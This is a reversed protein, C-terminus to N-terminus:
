WGIFRAADEKMSPVAAGDGSANSGTTGVTARILINRAANIDRDMKLDCFPCNHMREQLEKAVMRRCASCMKTTNKPEVFVMKCGAEEAKYALMDAFMRWGADNISRGFRREAMKKPKLKELAILSYSNVFERSLKHLFDKRCNGIKKHQRAVKKKARERNKSGKKCRSARRQCAALKEEFKRFHRQNEVIKGNSLAAFNMLGLDIGVKEGNNKRPQKKEQEVCFIAFWKGSAERKLTLTKIRGETERHRKIAIDGFPTVELKKGLFFGSQPYVLSKMRDISKFRPFGMQKKKAKRWVAESLRDVLQQAVQSYLGSRKAMDLMSTKTPFRDHHKYTEKTFALLENWLEKSIWLHTGMEKEQKKSPYARFKYARM